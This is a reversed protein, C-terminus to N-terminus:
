VMLVRFTSTLGLSILNNGPIIIPLLTQLDERVVLSVQLVPKLESEWLVLGMLQHGQQLELSEELM